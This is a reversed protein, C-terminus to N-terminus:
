IGKALAMQRAEKLAAFDEDAHFSSRTLPTASVHLFGKSRAIQELQAFEEPSWFRDIPHHKPTPQLYQGVTLFDVQAARLDDMVQRVDDLTEGLGVMIGSKTFLQPNARKADDLLRLSTYYRAGPRVRPYLRPVTELNHNFVDPAAEFVADAAEGKGLFDPTLVEITTGPNQHRTARITQAIHEAGGDELDDRDVSTIVVHRLGLKKVAAAVRGPEFADLTDPRGTTVNCFSCGRTCVEGMIMMTAHRKSWCEGINPCAAEECVTALDHERMLKRTEYYEPGEIKKKRIWKPKRPIASDAKHAKEPHRPRLQITM